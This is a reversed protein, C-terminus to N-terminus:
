EKVAGSTLGSVLHKQLITFFIMVPISMVVGAAMVLNWSTIFEQQFEYLGLPLTRTENNTLVTAFLVENWAKMFSLIAVTVIGPKATPLIVRIFAGMLSCGDILAAEELETPITDFYGRMIWISFPIVFATYTIILGWYTGILPIGLKNKILIFILYYPLLFMIGPFMQTILFSIGIVKRGRFRYKSLAYGALTAITTAFIMTIISVIVSNKFYKAMPIVKWIDIYNELRIRDPFIKPHMTQVDTEYKLSTIVLWYLPFLVFSLLLMIGLIILIKKIWRM